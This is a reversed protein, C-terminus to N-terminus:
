DVRRHSVADVLFRDVMLPRIVSFPLRDISRPLSCLTGCRMGRWSVTSCAGSSPNPTVINPVPSTKTLGRLLQESLQGTKTQKPACMKYIQAAAKARRRREGRAGVAKSIMVAHPRASSFPSRSLAFSFGCRFVRPLWSRNM